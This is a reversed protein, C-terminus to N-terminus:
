FGMVYRRRLHVFPFRKSVFLKKSNWHENEIVEEEEPVPCTGRIGDPKDSLTSGHEEDAPTITPSLQETPASENTQGVTTLSSLAISAALIGRKPTILEKVPTLTPDIQETRYRGCAEPHERKYTIVAERGWGTFDVVRHQCSGCFRGKEARPM